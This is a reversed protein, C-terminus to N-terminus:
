QMLGLEVRDELLELISPKIWYQSNKHQVHSQVSISVSNDLLSFTAPMLGSGLISIYMFTFFVQMLYPQNHNNDQLNIYLPCSKWKPSLYALDEVLKKVKSELCAYKSTCTKTYLDLFCADLVTLVSLSSINMSGVKFANWNQSLELIRLM